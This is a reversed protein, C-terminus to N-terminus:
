HTSRLALILEIEGDPRSLQAAIERASRGQDALTYVEAHAPDVRAAPESDAPPKEVPMAYPLATTPPTAERLAAIKEDAEKILLELKGARTDLQATIQRAMESLEVPLNSM